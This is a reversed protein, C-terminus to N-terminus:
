DWLEKIIRKQKEMEELKVISPIPKINFFSQTVTGLAKKVDDGMKTAGCIYIKGNKGYFL